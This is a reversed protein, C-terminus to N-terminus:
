AKIKFNYLSPLNTKKINLKMMNLVLICLPPYRFITIVKPNQNHMKTTWITLQPSLQYHFLTIKVGGVLITFSSLVNPLLPILIWYILSIHKCFIIIRNVFSLHIMYVLLYNKRKKTCVHNKNWQIKIINYWMRLRM